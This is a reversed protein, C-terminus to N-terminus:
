SLPIGRLFTFLRSLSLRHPPLSSPASLPAAAANCFFHMTFRVVYWWRYRRSGLPHMPAVREGCCLCQAVRTKEWAQLNRANGEAKVPKWRLLPPPTKEIGIYCPPAVPRLSFRCFRSFATPMSLCQELGVCRLILMEVPTYVFDTRRTHKHSREWLVFLNGERQSCLEM